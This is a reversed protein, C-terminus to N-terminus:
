KSNSNYWQNYFDIVAFPDKFIKDKIKRQLEPCDHFYSILRKKNLGFLGTRVFVLDNKDARKFYGKSQIGDEDEYELEYYTLYGKVLVRFFKKNGNSPYSFSRFTFFEATEEFWMSVYEVEGIKYGKLSNASYRRKGSEGKFRIRYYIKEFAGARRDKIKGYLTDGDNKIIYGEYYGRQATSTNCIITAVIFAPIFLLTKM